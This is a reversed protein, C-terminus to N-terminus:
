NKKNIQKNKKNSFIKLFKTKLFLIAMLYGWVTAMIVDVWIKNFGLSPDFKYFIWSILRYGSFFILAGVLAYINFLFFKKWGKAKDYMEKFELDSNM